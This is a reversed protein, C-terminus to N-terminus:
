TSGALRRILSVSSTVKARVEELHQKYSLTRDLHNNDVSVSLARKAEENCLHYLIRGVCDERYEAASAVQAPLCGLHGHEPQSGRGGNVM